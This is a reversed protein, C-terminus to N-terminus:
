GSCKRVCVRYDGLTNYGIALRLLKIPLSPDACIFKKNAIITLSREHPITLRLNRNYAQPFLMRLLRYRSKAHTFGGPDGLHPV